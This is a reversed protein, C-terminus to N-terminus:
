RHHRGPLDGPQHDRSSGQRQEEKRIEILAEDSFRLAEMETDPISHVWPADAFLLFHAQLGNAPGSTMYRTSAPRVVEAVYNALAAEARQRLAKASVLGRRALAGIDERDPERVPRDRTVALDLPFCKSASSTRMSEQLCSPSLSTMPMKTCCASRATTSDISTFCDLPEMRTEIGLRCIERSRAGRLWSSGPRQFTSPPRLASRPM